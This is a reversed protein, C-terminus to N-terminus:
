ENTSEKEEEFIMLKEDVKVEEVETMEEIKKEKRAKVKAKIAKVAKYIGLGALAAVGVAAVTGFVKGSKTTVIEETAEMVEENVMINETNM